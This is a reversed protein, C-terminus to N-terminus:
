QYFSQKEIAKTIYDELYNKDKKILKELTKKNLILMLIDKKIKKTHNEYEEVSKFHYWKTDGEDKLYKYKANIEKKVTELDRNLKTTGYFKLKFTELNHKLVYWCRCENDWKAGCEKARDKDKYGIHLDFKVVKDVKNDLYIDDSNAVFPKYCKMRFNILVNLSSCHEFSYSDNYYEEFIINKFNQMNMNMKTKTETQMEYIEEM